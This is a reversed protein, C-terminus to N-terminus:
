SLFIYSYYIISVPLYRADQRHNRGENEIKRMKSYLVTVSAGIEADM